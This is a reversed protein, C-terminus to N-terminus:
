DKFHLTLAAMSLAGKSRRGRTLLGVGTQSEIRYCCPDWRTQHVNTLNKLNLFLKVHAAVKHEGMAGVM